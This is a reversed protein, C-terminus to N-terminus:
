FRFRVQIGIDSKRNGKIESLGSSITNSNEYLTTAAKFWIDTYRFLTSHLLLYIRQGQGYLMTNTMVYLLDNEFQFVRSAYSETDFLTIRADVRLNRHVQVRLDQFILYGTETPRGSRIVELRSRLRIDRGLQKEAQLRISNRSISSLTRVERGFPDEVTSEQERSKLRLLAYINLDRRPRYETYLLWETGSSPQDSQFRPGPFHFQDRFARILLRSSFRHSVGTYVGRENRPYGSQESFASGFVSQYEPEYYRYLLILDTSPGASFESGSLVAKASRGTAAVEGYLYLSGAQLRYDISAGTLSTGQFLLQQYSRSGQIVPNEFRNHFASIGIQGLDRNLRLRGGFTEQGLNHKMTRDNLTRYYAAVRPFNVSGDDHRVSTRRKYSYFGTIQVRNGATIAIGRFAADANASSLPHIGRDNKSVSGTAQMGKGFSGGNWLLLGQGFSASYNGITATKVFGVNRLSIHWSSSDFKTLDPLPEGPRKMQTLNLSLHNSTYRIRQYYHAPSGTYGGEQPSRRSGETKQLTQRYRSYTEFRGNDTLFQMRSRTRGAKPPSHEFTLFPSIWEIKREDVGKVRMLDDPSNFMGNTVREQILQNAEGLTLGPLLMLEDLGAFNPNIRNGSMKEFLEMIQLHLEEDLTPDVTQIFHEVEDRYATSLSDSILTNAPCLEASFLVFLSSILSILAKTPKTRCIIIM